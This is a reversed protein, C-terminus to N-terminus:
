GSNAKFSTITPFEGGERKNEEEEEKEEKEEEEEEEEEQRELKTERWRRRTRDSGGVCSKESVDIRNTSGSIYIGRFRGHSDM